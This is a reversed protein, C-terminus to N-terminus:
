HFKELWLIKIINFAFSTKSTKLWGCKLFLLYYIDGGYTQMLKWYTALLICPHISLEKQKWM